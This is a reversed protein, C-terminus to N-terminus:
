NQYITFSKGADRGPLTIKYGEHEAMRRVADDQAHDSLYFIILKLSVIDSSGYCNQESVYVGTVCSGEILELVERAADLMLHGVLKGEAYVDVVAMGDEERPQMYLPDGPLLGHLVKSGTETDPGCTLSVTMSRDFAHRQLVEDVSKVMADYLNDGLLRRTSQEGASASESDGSGCDGDPTMGERLAEVGEADGVDVAPQVEGAIDVPRYGPYCDSFVDSRGMARRNRAFRRRRLDGFALAVLAALIMVVILTMLIYGTM